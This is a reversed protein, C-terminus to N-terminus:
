LDSPLGQNTDIQNLNTNDLDKTTVDLDNTNEIPPTTPASVYTMTNNKRVLWLVVFALVALFIVLFVPTFGKNKKM